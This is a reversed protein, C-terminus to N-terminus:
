VGTANYVVQVTASVDVPGSEVTTSGGADGATELMVPEARYPSVQVASASISSAGAIALDASAALTGAETRARDMAAELADQRLEHRRDDSLEFSVGQVRNAGSDVVGDIVSGVRDTDTLTIEVTHTARFKAPRTQEPRERAERITFHDTEIRDDPVGLEELTTRMASVNQAVHDRATAADDATAVVGVRLTAQDPEASVESSTSVDIQKSATDTSVQTTVAAAIGVTAVLLTVVAAVALISRNIRM